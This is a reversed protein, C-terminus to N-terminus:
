FFILLCTGEVKYCPNGKKWNRIVHEENGHSIEDHDGKVDM